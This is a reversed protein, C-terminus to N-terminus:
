HILVVLILIAEEVDCVAAFVRKAAAAAHFAAAAQLQLWAWLLSAAAPSHCHQVHLPTQDQKLM